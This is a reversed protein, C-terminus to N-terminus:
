GSWKVVHFKGYGHFRAAGIGNEEAARWISAWRDNDYIANITFSMKVNDFVEVYRCKRHGEADVFPIEVFEGHSCPEGTAANMLPIANERVNVDNSIYDIADIGTVQGDSFYNVRKVKKAANKLTSHIIYSDIYPFGFNDRKFANILNSEVLSDIDQDFLISTSESASNDIAKLMGDSIDSSGGAIDDAVISCDYHHGIKSDSFVSEFNM